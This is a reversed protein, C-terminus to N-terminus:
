EVCLTCGTACAEDDVFKKLVTEDFAEARILQYIYEIFAHVEKSQFAHGTLLPPDRTGFQTNRTAAIQHLSLESRRTHRSRPFAPVGVGPRAQDHRYFSSSQGRDLQNLSSRQSRDDNGYMADLASRPDPTYGPDAPSGVHSYGPPRLQSLGLGESQNSSRYNFPTGFNMSSYNPLGMPPRLGRNLQDQNAQARAQTDRTVTDLQRSLNEITLASTAADSRIRAIEDARAIDEARLRELASKAEDAARQAAQNSVTLKNFRIRLREREETVRTAAEEAENLDAKLRDTHLRLNQITGEREVITDHQTSLDNEHDRSRDKDNDYKKRLRDVDEQLVRIEEEQRELTSEQRRLKNSYRQM